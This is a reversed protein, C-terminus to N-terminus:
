SKTKAVKSISLATRVTDKTATGRLPANGFAFAVRQEAREKESMEYSKAADLRKVLTDKM